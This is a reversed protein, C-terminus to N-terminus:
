QVTETKWGREVGARRQFLHEEPAWWALAGGGLYLIATYAIALLILSPTLGAYVQYLGLLCLGVIATVRPMIGLAVLIIAVFHAAALAPPLYIFPNGGGLALAGLGLALVALRLLFPLGRTLAAQRTANLEGPGRLMGSAYLWDRAFGVLFPLGFLAAAIHLGPPSFAPLLAAALFGMMLGAFLRRGANPPLAYVPKGLRKRLWLGALYLHRSFAVLLYWGPVQGYQVALLATALVGLGDFSMDLIEGLRTIHNTRRALYGDFFDSADSLIYLIGPLWALWGSPRPLFLFGLMAATLLGRLLTLRNGWGLSPLLGREGTRHNAGLNRGLVILLYAVAPTPLMLWRLAYATGWWASLLAYGGGLFVLSLGAFALWRKRLSDMATHNDNEDTYM